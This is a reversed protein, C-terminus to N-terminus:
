KMCIGILNTDGAGGEQYEIDEPTIGELRLGGQLRSVLDLGSLWHRIPCPLLNRIGDLDFRRVADMSRETTKLRVGQCCGSWRTTSFCAVPHRSVGRPQVGARSLPRGAQTGCGELLSYFHCRAPRGYCGSWKPWSGSITWLTSSRIKRSLAISSNTWSGSRTAMWGLFHSGLIGTVTGAGSLLPGVHSASTTGDMRFSGNTVM